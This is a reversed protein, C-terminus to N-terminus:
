FLIIINPSRDCNFAIQSQAGKAASDNEAHFKSFLAWFISFGFLLSKSLWNPADNKANDDFSSFKLCSQRDAFSLNHYAM